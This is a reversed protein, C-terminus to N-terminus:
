ALGWRVTAALLLVTGLFAVDASRWALQPLLVAPVAGTYGRALMALHVREGRELSRVFLAGLAAALPGADWAFRPHYARAAQATRLGRVQAVLLHLYRWMLGVIMTVLAPARLAEFGHLLRPLPTTGSLVIVALVGITVKCALTVGRVPGDPAVVVLLGAALLFPVEVTMRRAMFGVPLRAAVALVALTALYAGFAAWAGDPTTVAVVVLGLLGIIKARPDLRHLPSVGAAVHEVAALGSHPGAM